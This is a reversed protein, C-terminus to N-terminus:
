QGCNGFTYTKSLAIMFVGQFPSLIHIGSFSDPRPRSTWKVRGTTSFIVSSFLVYLVIPSERDFFASDLSPTEVPLRAVPLLACYRRATHTSRPYYAGVDLARQRQM